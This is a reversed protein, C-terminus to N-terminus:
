STFPQTLEVQAHPMTAMAGTAPALGQPVGGDEQVSNGTQEAAVRDAMPTFLGREILGQVGGGTRFAILEENAHASLMGEAVRARIVLRESPNTM